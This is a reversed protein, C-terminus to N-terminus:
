AASSQFHEITSILRPETGYNRWDWSESLNYNAVLAQRFYQSPIRPKLQPTVELLAVKGSADRLLLYENVSKLHLLAEGLSETVTFDTHKPFLDILRAQKKAGPIPVVHFHAHYIGCGGGIAARSGHEFVIPQGYCSIRNAVKEVLELCASIRSEDLDAMREVHQSPLILMSAEFLQGITPLVVFEKEDLVTRSVQSGYLNAFRSQVPDHLEACFECDTVSDIFRRNYNRASTRNTPQHM